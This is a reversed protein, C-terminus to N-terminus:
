SAKSLLLDLTYREAIVRLDLPADAVRSQLDQQEQCLLEVARNRVKHIHGSASKGLWPKFLALRRIWGTRSTLSLTM